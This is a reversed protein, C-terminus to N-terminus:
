RATWHFHSSPVPLGLNAARRAGLEVVSYGEIPLLVKAPLRTSDLRAQMIVVANM